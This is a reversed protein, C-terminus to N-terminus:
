KAPPKWNLLLTIPVTSADETAINILFRGDPAVDYQQNNTANTGGGWIRTKFLAVPAGLELATGKVKISAAMLKGDPAIYYLEKGDPRWRAQIGGSTSVQWQGGPGPFPRIYVQYPGSENSHYAVWHGDPSFQSAREESATQLFSIPKRDGSLPLYWIDSGTKPNSPTIYLLFRGDPSWDNLAKEEPSELLPMEPGALDSRKQYLFRHGTRNSDFAVHNGDPSWIPWRDLGADFTFRTSRASDFIWIDTNNQM